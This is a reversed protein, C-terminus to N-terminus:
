RNTPGLRLFRDHVEDDTSRYARVSAGAEAAVVSLGESLGAVSDCVAAVLSSVIGTMAGADPAPPSPSAVLELDERGRDLRRAIDTLTDLDVATIM